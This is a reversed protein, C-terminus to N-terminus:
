KQSQNKIMSSTRRSKRSGDKEAAMENAKPLSAKSKSAKKYSPSKFGKQTGKGAARHQQDFDEDSYSDDKIPEIDENDPPLTNANKGGRKIDNLNGTHAM